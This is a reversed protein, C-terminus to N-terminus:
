EDRRKTLGSLVAVLLLSAVWGFMIEFWVFLRVVHKFTWHGFLEEFWVTKPTPILPAWDQEQQLNVVPLLVDLSYVLPSFGTYEEPLEACLYWNSTCTPYKQFVLPNSPGMAGQLAAVWYVAACVLWVGVMWAGLRMPRYGYGMLHGFAAHMGKATSCYAHRKWVPWDQPTQGILNAARLHEELAIAVQRADEAHGMNRLAHQLQKWPQPRFSSATLHENPQKDLWQLRTAADTPAGGGIHDYVFGDLEVEDGWAAADDILRGVRTSALSVRHAPVELKFVFSGSVVMGDSAFSHGESSKFTAGKCEFNGSIQAAQLRVEGVSTFGDNLLVHGKIAVRNAFLAHSNRGDLQAGTCDLNSGIQAGLLRVNGSATFKANLFVSGKIVARDASLADGSKGDLQAGSCQLNGGILAGQMRIRGSSTFGANLFVSGKIVARDASLANGDKGDLQAGQCNLSGGIQAGMLNVTGISRFGNGLIVDARCKLGDGTLGPVYSGQLDLKGNLEARNFTPQSEFHTHRIALSTPVTADTLDLTGRLWAGRLQIGREHIPAEDDGGLALFRLFNARVTNTDSEASPSSSGLDALLGFKCADLLQDEAPKLPKFEALTRGTPLQKM